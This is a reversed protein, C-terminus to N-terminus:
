SGKKSITMPIVPFASPNKTEIKFHSFRSIIHFHKFVFGKHSVPMVNVLVLFNVELLDCFFPVTGEKLFAAFLFAAFYPFPAKKSSCTNKWTRGCRVRNIIRNRLYLLLDDNNKFTAGVSPTISRFRPPHDGELVPLLHLRRNGFCRNGGHQQAGEGVEARDRQPMANCRQACWVNM